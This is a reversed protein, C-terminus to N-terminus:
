GAKFAALLLPTETKECSGTADMPPKRPTRIELNVSNGLRIRRQRKDAAKGPAAVRRQSKRWQHFVAAPLAAHETADAVRDGEQGTQAREVMRAM